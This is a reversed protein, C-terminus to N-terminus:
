LEQCDRRCRVSAPSADVMARGSTMRPHGRRRARPVRHHTVSVERVPPTVIESVAQWVAANNVHGVIDLDAHRLPWPRATADDPCAADSVRGSVKRTRAPEGYVDFFSERMRVPHGTPDMPVWLAAAELSWIAALEFNTRREAWAAGTGGCWTTLTVHDLYRPWAAARSSACRRAGCWGPTTSVAGGNAGTTPARRGPPISGVGDLRLLGREDVDGSACWTSRAFDVDWRALPCSSWCRRM